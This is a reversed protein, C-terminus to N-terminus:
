SAATPRDVIAADDDLISAAKAGELAFATVGNASSRYESEGM